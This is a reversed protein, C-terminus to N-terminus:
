NIMIQGITQGVTASPINTLASGNGSFSTATMVGSVSIGGQATFQSGSVCTAGYSIIPQSTDDEGVISDVQIQSQAVAM